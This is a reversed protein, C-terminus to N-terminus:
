PVVVSRLAVLAISIAIAVGVAEHPQTPSESRALLEEIRGELGRPTAGLMAEPLEPRSRSLEGVRVLASALDLPCVGSAVAGADALSELADRVSREASAIFPVFWLVDVVTAVLLALVLHRQRAHVLEHALAADREATTLADWTSQPFVVYPVRVGGTFPTGDVNPSVFVKVQGHGPEKVERSSVRARRVFARSHVWSRVRRVLRASSVALLVLVLATPAFPHLKTLSTALFGGLGRVEAASDGAHTVVIRVVPGLATFGFGAQFSGRPHLSAAALSHARVDAPLGRLTSAVLCVLPVLSFLLASRAGVFLRPLARRASAVLVSAFGFAGLGGVLHDLTDDAIM